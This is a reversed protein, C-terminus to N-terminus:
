WSRYVIRGLLERLARSSDDLARASPLWQTPDRWVAGAWPGRAQFDVPFPQVVLGQREFLRQARRMHFASTVLIIRGSSADQDSPQGTSGAMLLRRIAVAEEATNVVPPTSAMAGTPVGLAEAEKLYLSGEAPQGPLFPSAGGTFLLRPAKGALFLDVGTLFRDPDHWESVQAAGPAPHRGGSLVVIADANSAASVLQRQWPSELWRWLLQSVIGLSSLWLLVVAVIVPWRWRGILGVLLLVLSFGLPLMALPLIKSLLYSM